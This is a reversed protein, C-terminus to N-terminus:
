YLSIEGMPSSLQLRHLTFVHLEAPLSRYLLRLPLFLLQKKYVPHHKRLRGYVSLLELFIAFTPRSEGPYNLFRLAVSIHKVSSQFGIM